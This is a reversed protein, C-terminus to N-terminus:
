VWLIRCAVGWKQERKLYGWYGSKELIVFRKLLFLYAAKPINDQPCTGPLGSAIPGLIILVFFTLDKPSQLYLASLDFVWPLRHFLWRLAHVGAGADADCMNVVTELLTTLVRVVLTSKSQPLLCHSVTKPSVYNSSGDLFRKWLSLRRRLFLFSGQCEWCTLLPIKYKSDETQLGTLGLLLFLLCLM